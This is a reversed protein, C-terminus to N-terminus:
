KKDIAAFILECKPFNGPYPIPNSTSQGLVIMNKGQANCFQLARDTADSVCAGIPVYGTAGQVFVRYKDKDPINNSMQKTPPHFHSKSESYREIPGEIACASFLISTMLLLVGRAMRDTALSSMM